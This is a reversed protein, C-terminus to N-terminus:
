ERAPAHWNALVARRAFGVAGLMALGLASALLVAAFVRDSHGNHSASVIVVGLGQEEGLEGVLFEAVVTGIVALGAAVQLGTFVSPLAAPLRLRFMTATRSAGYLRFLDLLAADTALLGALTNAIVPFVSVIFACAAVAKLGPSLWISLMPAIAIIPVTQFFITYPAFARRVWVSSALGVAIAMGLLASLAFGILGAKATTWLASALYGREAILTDLVQSPRPVLYIPTGRARVYLEVLALGVVLVALPPGVRKIM